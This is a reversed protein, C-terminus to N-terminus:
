EYPSIEGYPSPRQSSWLWVMVSVVKASGHAGGAVRQELALELAETERRLAERSGHGSQELQDVAGVPGGVLVAVQELAGQGDRGLLHLREVLGQPGGRLAPHGLHLLRDALGRSDASAALRALLSNRALMLWSIRVGSLATIPM